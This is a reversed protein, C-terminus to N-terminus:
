QVVFVSVTEKFRVNGVGKPQLVQLHNPVVPRSNTEKPKGKASMTRVAKPAARRMKELEVERAIIQRGSYSLPHSITAGQVYIILPTEIALLWINLLKSCMGEYQGLLNIDPDLHYQYTGDSAKTQVYMLGLDAMVAVAHRLDARERFLNYLIVYPVNRVLNNEFLKRFM